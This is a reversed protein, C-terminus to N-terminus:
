EEEEKKSEKNPCTGKALYPELNEMFLYIKNEEGLRSLAILIWTNWNDTRKKFWRNNPIESELTSVVFEHEIKEDPVIELIRKKLKKIYFRKVLQFTGGCIVAVLCILPGFVIVEGLIENNLNFDAEIFYNIIGLISWTILATILIITM